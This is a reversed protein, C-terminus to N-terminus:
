STNFTITFSVFQLNSLLSDYQPCCLLCLSYEPQSLVAASNYYNILSGIHEFGTMEFVGPSLLHCKVGLQGYTALPQLCMYM